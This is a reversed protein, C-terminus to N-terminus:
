YVTRRSDPVPTVPGPTRKKRTQPPILHSRPNHATKKADPHVPRTKREGPDSVIAPATFALGPNKGPGERLPLPALSVGRSRMWGPKRSPPPPRYAPYVPNRKLRPSSRHKRGDPALITRGGGLVRPSPDVWGHRNAGVEETPLTKAGDRDRGGPSLGPSCGCRARRCGDSDDSGHPFTRGVWRHSSRMFLGCSPSRGRCPPLVLGGRQSGGRPLRNIM